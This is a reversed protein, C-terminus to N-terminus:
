AQVIGGLWRLDMAYSRSWGRRISPPRLLAAFKNRGMSIRSFPM